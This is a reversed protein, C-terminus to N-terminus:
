LEGCASLFHTRASVEAVSAFLHQIRLEVLFLARETTTFAGNVLPLFELEPRSLAKAVAVQLSDPSLTPAADIVAWALRREALKRDDVAQTYASELARLEVLLDALEIILEQERDVPVLKPTPLPPWAINLSQELREPGVSFTSSGALPWSDPLPIRAELSISVDLDGAARTDNGAVAASGAASTSWPVFAYDLDAILAFSYDTSSRLEDHVM